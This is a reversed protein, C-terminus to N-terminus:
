FYKELLQRAEDSEYIEAVQKDIWAKVAAAKPHRRSIMWYFPEPPMDVLTQLVIKEARSDGSLESLLIEKRSLGIDCRGILTLDVVKELDKSVMAVNDNNFGFNNYTYGKQGCVFLSQLKDATTPESYLSAKDLPFFFVPTLSYVPETFLYDRQRQPNSAADMVMDVDGSIADQMCRKWPKMVVRYDIGHRGFVRKLLDANFGRFESDNQTPLFSYPPWGADEYCVIFPRDLSLTDANVTQGFFVWTLFVGLSVQRLLTVVSGISNWM